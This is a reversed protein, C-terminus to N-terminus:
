IIIIIIIIIIIGVITTTTTTTTTTTITLTAFHKKVVCASLKAQGRMSMYVLANDTWRVVSRFFIKHFKLVLILEM